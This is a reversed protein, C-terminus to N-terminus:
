VVLIRFVQSVLFYPCPDSFILYALFSLFPPFPLAQFSPFSLGWLDGYTGVPGWLQINAGM